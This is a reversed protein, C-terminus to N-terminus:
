FGWSAKAVQVKSKAVWIALVVIRGVSFALFCMLEGKELSENSFANKM